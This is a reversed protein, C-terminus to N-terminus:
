WVCPIGGSRCFYIKEYTFAGMGSISTVIGDMGDGGNRGDPMWRFSM